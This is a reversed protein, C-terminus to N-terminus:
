KKLIFGYHYDSPTFEQTITLGVKEILGTAERRSLRHGTPPGLPSATAEWEVLVLAGDPKLIRRAEMLITRPDSQHFINAVLVCDAIAEPLRSGQPQELDARITEVIDAVGERRARAATETLMQPLIDIGIARGKKGVIKAAPVLYFGAGCGLHVVVQEAKLGVKHWLKAPQIFSLSTDAPTM